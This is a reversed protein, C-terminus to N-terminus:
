WCGYRILTMMLMLPDAAAAVEEEEGMEIEMMVGRAGGGAAGASPRPACGPTQVVGVFPHKRKTTGLGAVVAGGAKSRCEPRAAGSSSSLKQQQQAKADTSYLRPPMNLMYDSMAPRPYLHAM